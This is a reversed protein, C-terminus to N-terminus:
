YFNYENGAKKYAKLSLIDSKLLKLVKKIKIGRKKKNLLAEWFALKKIEIKKLISAMNKELVYNFFTIM